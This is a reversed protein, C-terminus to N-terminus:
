DVDEDVDDEGDDDNDEGGEDEDESVEEGLDKLRKKDAVRKDGLDSFVVLLDDLETQVDKRRAKEKEIEDALQKSRNEAEVVRADARKLRADLAETKAKYEEHATELDQIHNANAKESFAEVYAIRRQLDAIEAAERDRANQANSVAEDMAWRHQETLSARERANEQEILKVRQEFRQVEAEHQKRATEVDSIHENRRRTAEDEHTRVLASREQAAAQRLQRIEDENGDQLSQNIAKIRSVEVTASERTRRHDLEEQELRRKLQLLETNPM